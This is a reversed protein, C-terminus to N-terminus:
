RKDSATVVNVVVKYLHITVPKRGAVAVAPRSTRASERNSCAPSGWDVPKDFGGVPDRNGCHDM